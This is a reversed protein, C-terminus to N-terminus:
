KPFGEDQLYQNVGECVAAAADAPTLDGTWIQNIHPSVFNGSLYGWEPFYGFRGVTANLGETLFAQRNAPPNDPNLFADSMATSQLAPFIEGSATYIRQGGNTSQLWQLFHWADEKNDSGASMTWAAGGASAARRGGDPIPVVSVDYNMEAANFASVRSANQIIMAVQGAQFVAADGGAQNLNDSTMAANTAMLNAFFELGQM